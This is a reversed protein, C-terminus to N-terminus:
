HLIGSPKLAFAAMWMSWVYLANCVAQYIQEAMRGGGEASQAVVLVLQDAFM